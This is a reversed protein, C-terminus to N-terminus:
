AVPKFTPPEFGAEYGIPLTKKGLPLTAPAHRQASV